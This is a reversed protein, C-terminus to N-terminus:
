YLDEFYQGRAKLWDTVTSSRDHDNLRLDELAQKVGAGMNLSGCVYIRAGDKIWEALLDANERIKDQVYQKSPDRSFAMDLGQLLGQDKWKMIQQNYLFDSDKNKEGFILWNKNTGNISRHHLFGIFPAIGTGAGIMVVPVNSDSPLRFGENPILKFPLKEGKRLWSLHNSCAGYYIRKKQHFRIQKVTLHLERPTKQQSSAISYYRPRIKNPINILEEVHIGNPFDTILDLLDNNKIYEQCKDENEM